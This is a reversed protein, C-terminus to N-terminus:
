ERIGYLWLFSNPSVKWNKFDARNILWIGTEPQCKRRSAHFNVSPDTTSLWRIIAERNEDSKQSDLQNKIESVDRSIALALSSSLTLSLGNIFIASSV